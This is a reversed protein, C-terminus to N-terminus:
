AIAVRCQEDIHRTQPVDRDAGVAIADPGLVRHEYRMAAPDPARERVKADWRSDAVRLRRVEPGGIRLKTAWLAAKVTALCTIVKGM